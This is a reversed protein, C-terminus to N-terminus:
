PRRLRCPCAEPTSCRTIDAWSPRVWCAISAVPCHRRCARSCRCAFSASRHRPFPSTIARTWTSSSTTSSSRSRRCNTLRPATSRMNDQVDLNYRSKQHEKMKGPAISTAGINNHLQDAYYVPLAIRPRSPTVLANCRLSVVYTPLRLDTLSVTWGLSGNSVVPVSQLQGTYMADNKDGLTLLGGIAARNAVDLM